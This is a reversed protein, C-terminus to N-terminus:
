SSTLPKTNFILRGAYCLHKPFGVDAGDWQIHKLASDEVAMLKRKDIAQTIFVSDKFPFVKSYKVSDSHYPLHIPTFNQILAEMKTREPDKINACGAIIVAM